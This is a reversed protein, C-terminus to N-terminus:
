FPLVKKLVHWVLRKIADDAIRRIGDAVLDKDTEELKLLGEHHKDVAGADEVVAGAEVEEALVADLEQDVFAPRGEDALAVAFGLRGHELAEVEAMVHQWLAEDKSRIRWCSM